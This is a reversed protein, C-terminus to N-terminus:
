SFSEVGWAGQRSRHVGPVHGPGLNALSLISFIGALLYAERRVKM